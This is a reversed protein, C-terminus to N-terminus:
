STKVWRLKATYKGKTLDDDSNVLEFNVTREFVDGTQITSDIALTDTGVTSIDDAL